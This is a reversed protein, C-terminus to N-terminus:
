KLKKKMGGSLESPYSDKFDYIKLKKLIEEILEKRKEKSYSDKLVFEINEFVTKWPLVREEQFIYSIKSHQSELEGSFEKISKSIINLLTTKGCGSEGLIVSIKNQPFILSVEDLVKLEGYKKSISKFEIM